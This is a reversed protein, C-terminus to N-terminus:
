LADCAIHIIALGQPHNKCLGEIIASAQKDRLDMLKADLWDKSFYAQFPEFPNNNLHMLSQSRYAPHSATNVKVVHEFGYQNLYQALLKPSNNIPSSEVFAEISIIPEAPKNKFNYGIDNVNFVNNKVSLDYIREFYGKRKEMLVQILVPLSNDEIFKLLIDISDLCPLIWRGIHDKQLQYYVLKRDQDSQESSDFVYAISLFSLIKQIHLVFRGACNRSLSWAKLLRDNDIIQLDIDMRKKYDNLIFCLLLFLYDKTILCDVEYKELFGKLPVAGEKHNHIKEYEAILANIKGVMNEFYQAFNMAQTSDRLTVEKLMSALKTARIQCACEGVHADFLKVKRQIYFANLANSANQYCHLLLNLVHLKQKNDNLRTQELDMMLLDSFRWQKNSLQLFEQYHPNHIYDHQNYARPNDLEIVDSIRLRSM